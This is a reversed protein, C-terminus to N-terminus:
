SVDMADVDATVTAVDPVAAAAEMPAPADESKTQASIQAQAAQAAARRASPVSTRGSTRTPTSSPTGGRGRGPSATGRGRGTGSGGAANAAVPASMVTAPTYAFHHLSQPAGMAIPSPLAGRGNPIPATPVFGPPRSYDVQGFYSPHSPRDLLSPDVSLASGDPQPQHALPSGAGIGPGNAFQAPMPPIPSTQFTHQGNMMGEPPHIHAPNLHPHGLAQANAASASAIRASAPRPQIPQQPRRAAGAGVLSPKREVFSDLAGVVPAAHSPGAVPLDEPELPAGEARAKRKQLAVSLPIPLPIIDKLFLLEENKKVATATIALLISRRVYTM